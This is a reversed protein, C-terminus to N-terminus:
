KKLTGEWSILVSLPLYHKMGKIHSLKCEQFNHSAFVAYGHSAVKTRNESAPLQWLHSEVLAVSCSLPSWCTRWCNMSELVDGPNQGIHGENQDGVIESCAESANGGERAGARIEKKIAKAAWLISPSPMSLLTWCYIQGTNYRSFAPLPFFQVFWPRLSSRATLSLSDLWPPADRVLSRRLTSTVLLCHQPPPLPSVTEKAASKDSKKWYVCEQVPSHLYLKWSEFPASWLPSVLLFGFCSNRTRVLCSKPCEQLRDEPFM